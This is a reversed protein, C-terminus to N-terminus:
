ARRRKLLRDILIFALGMALFFGSMAAMNAVVRALGLNSVDLFPYPYFGSLPGRFISYLGYVLPFTLWPLM